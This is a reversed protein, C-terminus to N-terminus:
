LLVLSLQVSLLALASRSEQAAKTSKSENHQMRRAANMTSSENFQM